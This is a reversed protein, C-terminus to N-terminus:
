DVIVALALTKDDDTRANVAASNLFAVLANHLQDEQLQTSKSLVNFFNTFFPTHATNDVMNLALRQLGDTFAAIKTVKATYVKTVLVDIANEDTVFNTMNTYEGTMPIISVELGQGADVVVGGDGIQMVLTGQLSSLVGIFTCAFDRAALGEKEAHDYIRERVATVFQVALEDSLALEPLDLLKALLGASAEIALEAGEGGNSASGAGDSVFISLLSAKNQAEDVM